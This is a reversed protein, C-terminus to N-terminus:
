FPFTITYNRLFIFFVLILFVTTVMLAKGTKDFKLKVLYYRMVILNVAMGLLLMDIIRTGNLLHLNLQVIRLISAFLFAFPLPIAFGLIIGLSTKDNFLLKKIM